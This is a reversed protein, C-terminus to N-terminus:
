PRGANNMARWDAILQDLIEDLDRYLDGIKGFALLATRDNHWTTAFMPVNSHPLSVFQTLSVSTGVACAAFVESCQVTIHVSLGAPQPDRFPTPNATLSGRNLRRATRGVILMDTDDMGALQQKAADDARLNAVVSIEGVGKLSSRMAEPTQFPPNAVGLLLVLVVCTDVM